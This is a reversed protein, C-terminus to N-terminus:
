ICMLFTCNHFYLWELINRKVVFLDNLRKKKSKQTKTSQVFTAEPNLPNVLYDLRCVSATHHVDLESM